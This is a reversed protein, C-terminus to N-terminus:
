KAELASLVKHYMNERYRDHRHVDPNIELNAMEHLRVYDLADRMQAVKENARRVAERPSLLYGGDDTFDSETFM